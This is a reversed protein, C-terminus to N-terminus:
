EEKWYFTQLQTAVTLYPENQTQETQKKTADNEPADGKEISLSTITGLRRLTTIESLLQKVNVYPGSITLTVNITSPKNGPKKQQNQQESTIPSSSVQTASITAGTEAALERLRIIYPFVNPKTSIAEDLIPLKDQIAEYATQAQILANIKDDMKKNVETKDAIERRLYLITNVTPRIAYWGFLSIVMFFFIITSYLRTKPKELVPELSQYYRKYRHSIQDAM